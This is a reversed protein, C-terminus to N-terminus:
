FLAQVIARVVTFAGAGMLMVAVLILPGLWWDVQRELPELDRSRRYLAVANGQADTVMAHGVSGDELQSAAVMLETVEPEELELTVEVLSRGRGDQIRM